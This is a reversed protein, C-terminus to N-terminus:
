EADTTEKYIIAHRDIGSPDTMDVKMFPKLLYERDIHTAIFERDDDEYGVWFAVGAIKFFRKDEDYGHGKVEEVMDTRGILRLAFEDKYHRWVNYPIHPTVPPFPKFFTADFVVKDSYTTLTDYTIPSGPGFTTSIPTRDLVSALKNYISGM